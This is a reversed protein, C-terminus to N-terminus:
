AYMSYTSYSENLSFARGTFRISQTYNFVPNSLFLFSLLFEMLLLPQHLLFVNAKLLTMFRVIGRTSGVFGYLKRRDIFIKLYM